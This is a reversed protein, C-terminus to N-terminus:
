LYFILIVNQLTYQTDFALKFKNLGFHEM